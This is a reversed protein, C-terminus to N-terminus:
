ITQVRRQGSKATFDFTIRQGEVKVHGRRITALGFTGNERTYTASGSRFSGEDLLRM